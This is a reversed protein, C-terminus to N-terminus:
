VAMKSYYEVLIFQNLDKLPIKNQIALSKLDEYEVKVNVLKNNLYSEKLHVEGYSSQFIKIIRDLQERDLEFKRVGLTSTETFLIDLVQSELHPEILISIKIGDRGKKMHIPTTYFDLVGLDFLKESVYPIVEPNLDDLNTEILLLEKKKNLRKKKGLVLRLLNPIEREISGAGYGIQDVEMDPFGSVDDSWVKIIGAGTPTVLEGEYAVGYTPHNKLIELTAPAPLPILGHACKIFGRGLPLPSSIIQDVELSHIAISSGVIDLISDIAGVEHFHIHDRTTGHIKAEAEAILQFIEISKDKVKADLDSKNIIEVIDKLHRHKKQEEHQIDVKISTIQSVKKEFCNIEYGELSLKKLEQKLWEFDVGLHILAGLTMDGSLGSFADFYLIKM